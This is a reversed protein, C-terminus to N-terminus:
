KIIKMKILQGKKNRIIWILVTDSVEIRWIFFGTSNNPIGQFAPDVTAAMLSEIRRLVQFIFAHWSIFLAEFHGLNRLIVKTYTCV